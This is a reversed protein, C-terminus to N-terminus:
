YEHTYPSMPGVSPLVIRIIKDVEVALVLQYVLQSLKITKKKCDQEIKLKLYFSSPGMAVMALAAALKREVRTVTETRIRPM